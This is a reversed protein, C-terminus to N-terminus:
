LPSLAFFSGFHGSNTDTPNWLWVDYSRWKHCMGLLIIDGPAKKMKEFNKIKQTMLPTFPCIHGLHCFIIDTTRWIEPLMCWIIMIKPAFTNFSSMELQMKWKKLIKIQRTTLPTFPCFFLVFYFIRDRESRIEPVM